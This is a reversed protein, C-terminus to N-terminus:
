LLFASSSELSLMSGIVGWLFCIRKSLPNDGILGVCRQPIFPRRHAKLPRNKSAAAMTPNTTTSLVATGDGGM